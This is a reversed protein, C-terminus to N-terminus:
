CPGCPQRRAEASCRGRVDGACALWAAGTGIFPVDFRQRGANTLPDYQTMQLERKSEVGSCPVIFGM